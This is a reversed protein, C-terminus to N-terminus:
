EYERAVAGTTLFSSKTRGKAPQSSSVYLLYLQVTRVVAQCAISYLMCALLSICLFFLSAFFSTISISTSIFFFFFLNTHM